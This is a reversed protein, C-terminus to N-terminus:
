RKPVALPDRVWGTGADAFAGAEIRLARASVNGARGSKGASWGLGGTLVPEYLGRNLVEALRERTLEPGVRRLAEVLVRAAIYAAEAQTRVDGGAMGQYAKVQPDDGVVLFPSWVELSKCVPPANDACAAALSPSLAPSLVQTTLDGDPPLNKASFTDTSDHAWIVADCTSSHCAQDLNVDTLKPNAVAKVTAGPLTAVYERFAREASQGYDTEGERVLAFSRAHYADYARKVAIRVESAASTGVPWLTPSMFQSDMGGDGGVVPIGPRDGNTSDSYAAIDVRSPDFLAAFPENDFYLLDTRDVLKLRRGCIGGAENAADLVSEVIKRVKGGAEKAAKSATKPVTLYALKISGQTVGYDTHGGNDGAACRKSKAELRPSGSGPVTATTSSSPPVTSTSGPLPAPADGAPARGDPDDAFVNSSESTGGDAWRAMSLVLAVVLMLAGARRRRRIGQRRALAAVHEVPPRPLVPRQLLPEFVDTVERM